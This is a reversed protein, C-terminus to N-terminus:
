SSRGFPTLDTHAEAAAGGLQRKGYGYYTPVYRLNTGGLMQDHMEILVNPYKGHVLFALRNTAEVHDERGSPVPHGHHPDWCEGNDMTGDFMFFTAGDRALALLRALTEEVYQRSAGCLSMEVCSGDRNM